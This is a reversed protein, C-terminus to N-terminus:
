KSAPETAIVGPAEPVYEEVPTDVAEEEQTLPVEMPSELVEPVQQPGANVPAAPTVIEEGLNEDKPADEIPAEEPPAPADTPNASPSETPASTTSASPSASSTSSPSPDSDNHPACGALAASLALLSIVTAIKHNKM